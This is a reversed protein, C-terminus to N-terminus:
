GKSHKMRSFQKIVTVCRAADTPVKNFVFSKMYWRDRGSANFQLQSSFAKLIRLTCFGDKSVGSSLYFVVAKLNM